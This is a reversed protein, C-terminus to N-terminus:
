AIVQWIQGNELLLYASHQTALMKIIPSPLTTKIKHVSGDKALISVHSFGMHPIVAFNQNIATLNTDFSGIAHNSLNQTISNAKLFHKHQQYEVLRGLLHPMQISYLTNNFVFPSQWRYHPLAESEAIINLQQQQLDIMVTKAGYDDGSITSVLYNGKTHPMAILQNAEFVTNALQLPQALPQLNHRELFYLAKAEIADGLVAHQYTETDPKALVAIHGQQHSGSFNFQIPRADPLVSVESSATVKAQNNINEIRVLRYDQHQKSVAIVAFPLILMEAHTALPIHSQVKRQHELMLFHGNQDAAAVKGYGAKPAVDTSLGNILCHQTHVQWLEGDQNIVFLNDQEDITMQKVLGINGLSLPKLQYDAYSHSAFLVSCLSLGLSCLSLCKRKFQSLKM